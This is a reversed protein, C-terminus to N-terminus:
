DGEFRYNAVDWSAGDFVRILVVASAGYPLPPVVTPLVMTVYGATASGAPGRFGTSPPDTPLLENLPTGEPGGFLQVQFGTGVTSTGPPDTPLVFRADIEPPNSGVRNVFTFQGQGLVGASSAAFLMVVAASRRRMLRWVAASLGLGVLLMSTPEPVPELVLPSTGLNLYPTANWHGLVMDYRGQFRYTAQDWSPGDFARVLITALSGFHLSPVEPTMTNVYGAAVSGAPARFTIRSPITPALETLPAGQPGALLEVQFDESGVASTGPPDTALVFRADIESGARNNFVFYGQGRAAVSALLMAVCLVAVVKM